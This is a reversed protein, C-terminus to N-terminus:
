FSPKFYSLVGFALAVIRGDRRFCALRRQQREKSGWLAILQLVKYRPRAVVLNITIPPAEYAPSSELSKRIKLM